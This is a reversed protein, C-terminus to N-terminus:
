HATHLSTVQLGTLGYGTVQFQLMRFMGPKMKIYLHNQYIDDCLMVRFRMDATLTMKIRESLTSARNALLGTLPHGATAVSQLDPDAGHRTHGGGHHVIYSSPVTIGGLAQEINQMFQHFSYAPPLDVDIRHNGPAIEEGTKEDVQPEPNLSELYNFFQSKHQDAAYKTMDAPPHDLTYNDRTEDTYFYVSFGTADITPVEVLPVSFRSVACLYQSQDKLLPTNSFKINVTCNETASADNSSEMGSKTLNLYTISKSRGGLELSMKTQRSALLM